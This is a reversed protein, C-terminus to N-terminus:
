AGKVLIKVTTTIAETAYFTITGDGCLCKTIADNATDDADTWANNTGTGGLCWMPMSTTTYKDNNITVSYPYTSDETAVWDETAINFEVVSINNDLKDKLENMNSNVLDIENEVNNTTDSGDGLLVDKALTRESMLQFGDDTLLYREFSKLGSLIAM